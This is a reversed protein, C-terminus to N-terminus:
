REFITEVAAEGRSLQLAERPLTPRVEGWHRRAAKVGGDDLREGDSVLARLLPRTGDPGPEDLPGDPRPTVVDVEVRGSDDYRRLV